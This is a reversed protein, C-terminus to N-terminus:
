LDEFYLSIINQKKLLVKFLIINLFNSFESPSMYRILYPCLFCFFEM